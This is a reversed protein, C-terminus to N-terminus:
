VESKEILDHWSARCAAQAPWHQLVCWVTSSDRGPKLYVWTLPLDFLCLPSVAEAEQGRNNFKGWVLKHQRGSLPEWQWDAREREPRDSESKREVKGKVECPCGFSIFPQEHKEEGPFSIIFLGLAESLLNAPQRILLLSRNNPTWESLSFIPSAFGWLALSPYYTFPPFCRSVPSSISGCHKKPASWLM